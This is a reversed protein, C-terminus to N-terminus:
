LAVDGPIKLPLHDFVRDHFLLTVRLFASALHLVNFLVNKGKVVLMGISLGVTRERHPGKLQSIL